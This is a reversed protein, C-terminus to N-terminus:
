CSNILKDNYIALLNDGHIPHQRFKLFIHIPMVKKKADYSFDAYYMFICLCNAKVM